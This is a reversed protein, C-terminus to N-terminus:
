VFGLREVQGLVQRLDAPFSLESDLLGSPRQVNIQRRMEIMGFQTEGSGCTDLEGPPQDVLGLSDRRGSKDFGIQVAIASYYSRRCCNGREVRGSGSVIHKRSQHLAGPSATLQSPVQAADPEGADIWLM